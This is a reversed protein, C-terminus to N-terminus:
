TIGFRFYTTYFEIANRHEHAIANTVALGSMICIDGIIRVNENGMRWREADEVEIVIDIVARFFEKATNRNDLRPQMKEPMYVGLM